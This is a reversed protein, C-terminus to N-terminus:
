REINSHQIRRSAFEPQDKGLTQLLDIQSSTADVRHIARSTLSKLSGNTMNIWQNAGNNINNFAKGSMGPWAIETTSIPVNVYSYTGNSNTVRQSLTFDDKPFLTALVGCPTLSDAPNLKSGTISYISSYDSNTVEGTCSSSLDSPSQYTGSLQTYSVSKLSRRHQVYFDKFYLYVYVPGQIDSKVFFPFQCNQSDGCKDDIRVTFSSVGSTGSRIIFGVAVFVIVQLHYLSYGNRFQVVSHGELGRQHDQSPLM